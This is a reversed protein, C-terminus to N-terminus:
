SLDRVPSGIKGDRVASWYRALYQDATRSPLIPEGTLSKDFTDYFMILLMWTLRGPTKFM